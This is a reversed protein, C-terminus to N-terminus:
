VTFTDGTTHQKEAQISEVTLFSIQYKAVVKESIHLFRQVRARWVPLLMQNELHAYKVLMNYFFM